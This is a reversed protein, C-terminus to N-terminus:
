IFHKGKTTWGKEYDKAEDIDSLNPCSPTPFVKDTRLARETRVGNAPLSKRGKPPYKPIEYGNSKLFKDLLREANRLSSTQSSDDLTDSSRSNSLLSRASRPPKPPPTGKPLTSFIDTQYSKKPKEKQGASYSLRKELLKGARESHRKPTQPESSVAVEEEITESVEEIVNVAAPCSKRNSRPISDSGRFHSKNVRVESIVCNNHIQQIIHIMPADSNLDEELTSIAKICKNRDNKAALTLKQPSNHHHVKRRSKKRELNVKRVGESDSTFCYCFGDKCQKYMKEHERNQLNQDVESQRCEGPM